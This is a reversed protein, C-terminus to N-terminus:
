FDPWKCNLHTCNNLQTVIERGNDLFDVVSVSTNDLRLRWFHNLDMRLVDSVICRIVGGHAVVIISEDNHQGVLRHIAGVSREAVEALSEGKPIKVEITNGRWKKYLDSYSTNIEDYTLGEWIGFNIERLEPIKKINLEHHEAIIEATKVARSLDSSYIASIKEDALTQGLKLAQMEGKDTLEIDSQGQFRFDVNWQTEGHRVLFMRCSM